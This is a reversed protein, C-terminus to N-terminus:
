VEIIKNPDFNPNEGHYGRPNCVVRTDGVLYDFSAHMHGHTWLKIQPISLIFEDLDSAYGGNMYHDNGYRVRDISQLSPAHHSVMVVKDIGAFSAKIKKLTERHIMATDAPRIAKYPHVADGILRYDNMGNQLTMATMPCGNNLDTWVTGGFFRYGKHDIHEGDLWAINNFPQLQEAIIDYTESIRSRYHEHNGPIYIVQEFNDSCHGFFERFLNAYQFYPSDVSRKFYEAVCIDGALILVDSGNNNIRFNASFELHLDSALQIKM